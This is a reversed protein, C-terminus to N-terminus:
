EAYYYDDPPENESWDYNKARELAGELTSYGETCPLTIWMWYMYCDSRVEIEFEGKVKVIRCNEHCKEDDCGLILKQQVIEIGIRQYSKNVYEHNRPAM